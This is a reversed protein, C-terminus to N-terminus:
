PSTLALIRREGLAFARRRDPPDQLLYLRLGATLWDKQGKNYINAEQCIEDVIKALNAIVLRQQDILSRIKREVRDRFIDEKLPLKLPGLVDKLVDEQNICLPPAIFGSEQLLLVIQEKLRNKITLAHTSVDYEREIERAFQSASREIEAQLARATNLIIERQSAERCQMSRYLEELEDENHIEVCALVKKYFVATPDVALESQEMVHKYLYANDGAVRRVLGVLGNWDFPGPPVYKIFKLRNNEDFRLMHGIADAFSCNRTRLKKLFHILSELRENYLIGDGSLVWSYSDLTDGTIREVISVGNLDIDLVSAVPFNDENEEREARELLLASENLASFVILHSPNTRSEFVRHQNERNRGQLEAGILVESLNCTISVDLFSTQQNIHQIHLPDKELFVFCGGRSLDQHLRWELRAVNRIKEDPASQINMRFVLAKICHHLDRVGIKQTEERKLCVTKLRDIFEQWETQEQSSFSQRQVVKQLLVFPFERNLLRKVRVSYFDTEVTEILNFADEPFPDASIGLSNIFIDRIKQIKNQLSGGESQQFAQTVYCHWVEIQEIENNAGAVLPYAVLGEQFCRRLSRDYREQTNRINEISSKWANSMGTLVENYASRRKNGRWDTIREMSWIVTHAIGSFSKLVCANNRCVTPVYYYECSERSTSPLSLMNRVSSGLYALAGMVVDM